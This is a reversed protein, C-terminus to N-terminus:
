LAWEALSDATRAGEHPYYVKKDKPGTYIPSIGAPVLVVHPYGKLGYLTDFQRNVSADVKAVKAVGKLKTALKAWEPRLKKCHDCWPAYLDILWTEDSEYITSELNDKDLVIVDEESPGRYNDEEARISVALMLMLFISLNSRM